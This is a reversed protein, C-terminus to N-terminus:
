AIVTSICDFTLHNSYKYLNRSNRKAQAGDSLIKNDDRNFDVGMEGRMLFLYTM